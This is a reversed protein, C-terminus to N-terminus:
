EAALPTPKLWADFDHLARASLAQKREKGRLTGEIPPFLGFNVNMPQFSRAGSYAEAEVHGGPANFKGPWLRKHQGRRILLVRDGDAVLVLVRPIYQYRGPDAGYAPEPM